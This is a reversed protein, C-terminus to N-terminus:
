FMRSVVNLTHQYFEKMASPLTEQHYNFLKNGTFSTIVKNEIEVNSQEHGKLPKM